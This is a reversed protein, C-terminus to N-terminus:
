TFWVSFNLRMWDKPPNALAKIEHDNDVRVDFLLFRNPIPPITTTSGNHMHLLFEGGFEKEWKEHLYLM